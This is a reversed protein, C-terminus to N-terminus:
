SGRSHNIQQLPPHVTRGLKNPSSFIKKKEQKEVLKVVLHM